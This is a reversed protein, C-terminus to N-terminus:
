WANSAHQSHCDDQRFEQNAQEIARYLIDNALSGRQVPIEDKPTCVDVAGDDQISILVIM